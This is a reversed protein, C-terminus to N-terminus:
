RAARHCPWSCWRHVSRYLQRGFILVGRRWSSARELDFDDLAVVGNEPSYRAAQGEKLVTAKQPLAQLTVAVSHQ